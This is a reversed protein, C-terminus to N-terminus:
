DITFIGLLNQLADYERLKAKVHLDLKESNLGAGIAPAILNM